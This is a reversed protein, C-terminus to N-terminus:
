LYTELIADVNLILIHYHWTRYIVSQSIVSQAIRWYFLLIHRLALMLCSLCVGRTVMM